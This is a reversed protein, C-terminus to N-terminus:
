PPNRSRSGGGPVQGPEDVAERAARAALMALMAVAAARREPSLVGWVLFDSTVAHGASPQM